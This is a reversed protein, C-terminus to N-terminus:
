GSVPLLTDQEDVATAIGFGIAGAAFLSIIVPTAGSEALGLGDEVPQVAPNGAQSPACRRAVAYGATGAVKQLEATCAPKAGVTATRVLDGSGAVATSALALSAIALFSFRM